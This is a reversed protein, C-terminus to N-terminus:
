VAARTRLRERVFRVVEETVYVPPRMALVPTGAVLKLSVGKWEPRGLVGEVVLVADARDLFYKASEKFDATEPDLVSLYLDPGLFRMISNSEIVANEAREIEKRIRPMAESLDGARTRVWFSRVAGAALYRGSDTKADGGVREESVAVTHEATECDCPEGNASCMGHGFQTIKFATWHMEPIAAILGAVVSTKGINRTHGGVVVIAM